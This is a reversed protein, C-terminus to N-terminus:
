PSTSLATKTKGELMDMRAELKVQATGLRHIEPYLPDTPGGLGAFARELASIRSAQGSASTVYDQLLNAHQKVTTRLEVVEFSLTQITSGAWLLVGTLILGVMAQILKDTSWYTGPKEANEALRELVPGIPCHHAACQSAEQTEM